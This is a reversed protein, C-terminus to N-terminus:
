TLALWTRLSQELLRLDPASLGGVVRVILSDELTYLGRKVALPVNLGASQWGQLVFEGALLGTVRSTLPVIIVDRSVHPANVVVAPRVKAGALNSFPYRVLIVDGHSYNAM